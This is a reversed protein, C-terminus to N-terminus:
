RPLEPLRLQHLWAAFLTDLSQGTHRQALTTFQSTTVGGHRHTETWTRLLAFFAKDGMTTRLAHLTLAGRQYVRDDFTRAIGPNALVLDQPLAALVAWSRAAHRDAPEAGSVESWLWEAYQAFGEHLWIHRWDTVTLSNGFWQHALEHAVLHEAGRAGDVHNVGFTSLGQAEVPVELEADAVVVAYGAFPYDGFLDQFASLMQAQRGFDHIAATLLRPPVAAVQLVPAGALEVLDYRGIQVTALYAAMPEPQEYVWTTAGAGPRRSVLTGNALVTYPSPTTVAIRYSAKASVNDQCPFWSPAGVPQSAVLAGDTLQDWGIEGWHSRVPRPSGLYRVEVTFPSGAPVPSAPRIRLRGARHVYRAPRGDVAVRDLRFPGLDLTFTALAPGAVASIRAHGALRATNPRYNLDLDYHTVRYDGPARFSTM